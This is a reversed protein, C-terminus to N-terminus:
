GAGEGSAVPPMGDTLGARHLQRILYAWYSAVHVDRYKDPYVRDAMAPSMPALDGFTRAISQIRLVRELTLAAYTAWPVSEGTIVVGHGRLVIARRQGLSAAVREGQDRTIILEATDDFYALGERFLVADHNLLELRADTAGFATTYPPHTHIVSRVDPRARYIETHIVYELHVRARGAILTGDLDIRLIDDPTVEELGLGYRKMLVHQGDASRASVHGLTYDGHDGMALIRCAWAVQERLAEDTSNLTKGGTM